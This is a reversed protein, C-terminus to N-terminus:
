CRRLPVANRPATEPLPHQALFGETPVAQCLTTHGGGAVDVVDDGLTLTTTIVKGVQLRKTMM